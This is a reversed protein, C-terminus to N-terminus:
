TPHSPPLSLSSRSILLPGCSSTNLGYRLAKDRREKNNKGELSFVNLAVALMAALAKKQTEDLFLCLYLSFFSGQGLSYRDNGSVRM